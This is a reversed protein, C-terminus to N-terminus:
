LILLSAALVLRHKYKVLMLMIMKGDANTNRVTTYNCWLHITDGSESEQSIAGGHHQDRLAEFHKQARQESSRSVIFELVCEVPDFDPDSTMAVVISLRQALRPLRRIGKKRIKVPPPERLVIISDIRTGGSASLELCNDTRVV